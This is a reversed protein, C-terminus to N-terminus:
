GVRIDMVFKRRQRQPVQSLTGSRSLVVTRHDLVQAPNVARTVHGGGVRLLSVGRSPLACRSTGEM